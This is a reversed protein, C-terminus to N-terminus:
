AASMLPAARPRHGLAGGTNPRHRRGAPLHPDPPRAGDGRHNGAPLRDRADSPAALLSLVERERGSLRPAPDATNHRPVVALAVRPDLPAEGAAAARIARVHERTTSDKLIYGVAGADIAELVRAHEAFSTLVVVRIEPARAVIRRTAETGDLKPMALDMLVVDPRLRLTAEVGAEGDTALGVVEIGEAAELVSKLGELVVVHDDCLVVRIPWEAPRGATPHM